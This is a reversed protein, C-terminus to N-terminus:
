CCPAPGRRRVALAAANGGGGGFVGGLGDRLRRLLADVDPANKKGKWPDRNGGGPENWAM